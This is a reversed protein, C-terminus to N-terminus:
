FILPTTPPFNHLSLLQSASGPAGGGAATNAEVLATLATESTELLQTATNVDADREPYALEILGAARTAAVARAMDTLTDAVTGTKAAVYATAAAAIRAASADNPTTNQNFTGVPQQEGVGTPVTRTPIYDAVEPLSPQWPVPVTWAATVVLAGPESTQVAGTSSWLWRWIGTADLAINAHYKGVSDRVPAPTTETGDPRRVTLTVDADTFAGADDRLTMTLHAVDGLDYRM